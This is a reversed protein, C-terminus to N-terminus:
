RPGPRARGVCRQHGQGVSLRLDPRQVGAVFGISTASPMSLLLEAPLQADDLVAGIVFPTLGGDSWRRLQVVDGAAAGFLGASTKSMVVAGAALSDGVPQGYLETASAADVAASSMPYQGGPAARVYAAGSRYMEYLGLTGGHLLAAGAGVDAAADFAAQQVAPDLDRFQSVSVRATVPGPVGILRSAPPGCASALALLLAAAVVALPTRLARLPRLRITM